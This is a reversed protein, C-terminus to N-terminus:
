WTFWIIPKMMKNQPYRCKHTMCTHTHLHSLTARLLTNAGSIRPENTSRLIPPTLALEPEYGGFHRNSDFEGLNQQVLNAVNHVTYEIEVSIYPSMRLFGEIFMYLFISFRIRLSEPQLVRLKLGDRAWKPIVKNIYNAVLWSWDCSPQSRPLIEIHLAGSQIDRHM